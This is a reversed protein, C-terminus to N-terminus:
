LLAHEQQACIEIFNRLLQLGQDSSKEPHFQVGYLPHSEVVTVFPCAYTTKGAVEPRSFFEDGDKDYAAYSHLHYFVSDEESVGARLRSEPRWQVQNWGIHPVRHGNAPLKRVTGELFSLGKAEGGHEESFEFFLQLGLCIGLIPRDNNFREWLVDVLELEELRRMAEPFAGVGIIVAGSANLIEEPDSTISVEAGLEKGVKLLAKEVSRRNGMGYDVIAITTPPTM